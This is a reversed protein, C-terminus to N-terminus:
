FGYTLAVGVASTDVLNIDWWEYELRVGFRTGFQGFRWEVGVMATLGDDRITGGSNIQGCCQAQGFEIFKNDSSYYGLGGLLVGWDFPYQGLGRLTTMSFDQSQTLDLDGVSPFNGVVSNVIDDTKGYTIELAFYNNIEFGGMIKYTDVNASSQGLFPDTFREQYDFKGVGLGVYIGEQANAASGFIACLLAAFSAPRMDLGSIDWFHRPNDVFVGRRPVM